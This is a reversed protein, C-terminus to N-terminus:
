VYYLLQIQRIPSFLFPIFWSLEICNLRITKANSLVTEKIVKLYFHIIEIENTKVFIQKIISIINEKFTSVHLSFVIHFINHIEYVYPM